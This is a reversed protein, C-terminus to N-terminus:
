QMHILSLKKELGKFGRNKVQNDKLLDKIIFDYRDEATGQQKLKRYLWDQVVDQAPEFFIVLDFDIGVNDITLRINQYETKNIKYTVGDDTHHVNFIPLIILSYQETPLSNIFQVVNSLDEGKLNDLIILNCCCVDLKNIVVNDLVLKHLDERRIEHVHDSIFHRKIINAAFTKGVGTTGVFTMIKSVGHQSNIVNISNVILKIAERQGLLNAELDSQLHNFQSLRNITIYREGYIMLGTMSFACISLLVLLLKGFASIVPPDIQELYSQTESITPNTINLRRKVKPVNDCNTDVDMPEPTFTENLNDRIREPQKFNAYSEQYFIQQSIQGNTFAQRIVILRKFNLYRNRLM